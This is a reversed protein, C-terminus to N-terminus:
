KPPADRTLLKACLLLARGNHYAGQWMSSRIRRTGLTGDEQVTGWWGGSAAIQHRQIFALTGDFKARYSPDGSLTELTLMAVLGEAQTWWEKKRDDSPQGLPGTYFFGGNIDDYGYEIAHDCIMTAWSRLIDPRWGLADAADLVLWACELDHGYSARHNKPADVMTWNPHWGDINCAYEPHKVTTTVISLLEALRNAVQPDGTERLLASYAELLHLHSNYTKTNAAGIYGSSTPETILQWDATFFEHYGGHRRDHAHEQLLDFLMKASTLAEVDGTARYYEVLAYIAFANHYVHKRADTPQKGNASVKAFCGGNAADFFHRRLFDYGTKAAALTEQRRINERALASFFWLQRAQMTLFKEGQVFKGADDLVEFYGGHQRDLCDPLYFDLLSQELLQRCVRARQQGSHGPSEKSRAEVPFSFGVLLLFISTLKLRSM